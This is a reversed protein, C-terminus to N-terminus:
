TRTNNEQEGKRESINMNRDYSQLTNSEPFKMYVIMPLHAHTKKLADIIHYESDPAIYTMLINYSQNMSERVGIHYCLSPQQQQVTVDVLAVDANYFTDLANAEGFDLRDFDIQTLNVNLTDAVNQVDKLAMERVKLNKQVKQDIVIVVQLKRTFSTGMREGSPVPSAPLRQFSTSATPVVSSRPPLPIPCVEMSLDTRKM